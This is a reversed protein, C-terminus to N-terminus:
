KLHFFSLQPTVQQSRLLKPKLITHQNFISQINIFNDELNFRSTLKNMNTEEGQGSEISLFIQQHFKCDCVWWKLNDIDSNPVLSPVSLSLCFASRGNGATKHRYISEHTKTAQMSFSNQLFVILAKSATTRKGSAGPVRLRVSCQKMNWANICIQLWVQICWEQLVNSPPHIRPSQLTETSLTLWSCGTVLNFPELIWSTDDPFLHWWIGIPHHNHANDIWCM